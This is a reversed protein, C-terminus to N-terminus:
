PFGPARTILMLRGGWTEVLSLGSAPLGSREFCPPRPSDRM